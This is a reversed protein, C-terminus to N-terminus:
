VVSKRDEMYVSGITIMLYLRPIINGAYQVLEYLDILYNNSSSKNDKLYNALYTLGDHVMIYLEYYQKPNLSSTRLENLFNSAHKLSDMFKHKTELCKRMQHIETKIISMSNSLLRQQEEPTVHNIKSM